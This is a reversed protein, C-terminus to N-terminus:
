YILTISRRPATMRMQKISKEALGLFRLAVPSWSLLPGRGEVNGEQWRSEMRLEELRPMALFPDLPRDLHMRTRKNHRLSLKTLSLLLELMRPIGEDLPLDLFMDQLTQPVAQWSANLSFAMAAAGDCETKIEKYKIALHKLRGNLCLRRVTDPDTLQEPDERISLTELLKASRPPFLATLPVSGKLLSLKVTRISCPMGCFSKLIVGHFVLGVLRPCNLKVHTPGFGMIWLGRLLPLDLFMTAIVDESPVYPYVASQLELRTLRTLQCLPESKDERLTEGPVMLELRTLVTSLSRWYQTELMRDHTGFLAHTTVACVLLGDLWTSICDHADGAFVSSRSLWEVSHMILKGECHM